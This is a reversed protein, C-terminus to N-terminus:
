KASKKYMLYWIPSYFGEPASTTSNADAKPPIPVLVDGGQKWNVPTM